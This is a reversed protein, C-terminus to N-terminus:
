TMAGIQAYREHLHHELYKRVPEHGISTLISEAFARILLARADAESLGRSRLYFLATADLQGTTAGHSCKVDDAYIELEPKTDIEATASLLLNRNSQRADIKQAGPRVIVKGNFVGRGRGEAVGRYEEQSTTHPAVHDVLTHTDLHQNGAPAFLGSLAVDAGPGALLAKIDVRGISAGLALNHNSYHSDRGLQARVSGVHFGRLSEQQIRYHTVRAGADIELSVVPNTLSEVDPSGLYHEIIACRSNRGARVVIRPHSMQLNSGGTWQHVLYIPQDLTVDDGIEIVVGDDSFATNFDEFASPAAASHNALFAAVSAPDNAAWQGLTLITVGPPQVAASALGPMAHGNVLVVRIGGADIWLAEDAAFPAASAVTFNRSELRRLNTYKWDENRPTPFGVAIFRELAARRLATWEDRATYRAEFLARYRELAAAGANAAIANM